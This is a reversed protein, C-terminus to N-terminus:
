ESSNKDDNQLSAQERLAKVEKTLSDLNKSILLLAKLFQEKDRRFGNTHYYDSM